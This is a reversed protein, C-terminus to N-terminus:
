GRAQEIFWRDTRPAVSMREVLEWKSLSNEVNTKSAAWIGSQCVSLCWFPLIPQILYSSLFCCPYSRPFTHILHNSGNASILFILICSKNPFSLAKTHKLASNLASQAAPFVPSCLLLVCLQVSVSPLSAWMYCYECSYIYDQLPFKLPPLSSNPSILRGLSICSMSFTNIKPLFFYCSVSCQVHLHKDQKLAKNWFKRFIEVPKGPPESHLIWSGICSLPNWGQTPFIGQLLFHCGEGINKSSFDWPSLSKTSQSGRPM